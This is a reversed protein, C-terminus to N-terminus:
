ETTTGPDHWPWPAQQQMESHSGCLVSLQCRKLCTVECEAYASLVSYDATVVASWSVNDLCHFSLAWKWVPLLPYRGARFCNTGNSLSVASVDAQLVVCIRIIHNCKSMRTTSSYWCWIQNQQVFGRWLIWKWGSGCHLWIEWQSASLTLNFFTTSLMEKNYKTMSSLTCKAIQM